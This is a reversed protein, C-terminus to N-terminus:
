LNIRPLRHKFGCLIEYSITGLQNAWQDVTLLDGGEKGILTAIDGVKVDELHSVDLMIQDMTISGIQPALQGNILVKLNNSLCRPIGDAYGIGVVAIKTEKATVFRHGYSVGTEPPLTKLQTIRAKVQMVPKIEVVNELHPAPYSGYIAIGARVMDYHFDRGLM